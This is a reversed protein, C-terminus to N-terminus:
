RDARAAPHVRIETRESTYRAAIVLHADVVRQEVPRRRVARLEHETFKRRSLHVDPSILELRLPVGRAVTRAVSRYGRSLIARTRQAQHTVARADHAGIARARIARPDLQGRLECTREVRRELDEEERVALREGTLLDADGDVVEAEGRRVLDAQSRGPEVARSGPRAPLRSRPMMERIQRPGHARPQEQAEPRTMVSRTWGPRRCRSHASSSRM